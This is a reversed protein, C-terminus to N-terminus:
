FYLDNAEGSFYRLRLNPEGRAAKGQSDEDGDGESEDDDETARLVGMAQPFSFIQM